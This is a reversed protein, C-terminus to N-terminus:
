PTLVLKLVVPGVCPATAPMEVALGGPNQSWHLRDHGGLLSVDAIRQGATWHPSNRALARVNVGGEGPWDMLIAYLAGDKTTFRVDQGTFSKDKGENFGQGSLPAGESAPGEGFIVWPRTGFIAERNVDMWAAIDDLVKLEKEDPSGDGRLPINLLLNGNKSVIDALMQVITKASKYGNREYLGRNYHWGGICTDTQWAFPLGGSPVGREIDWVLAERQHANLIKGFLM